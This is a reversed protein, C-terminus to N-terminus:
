WYLDWLSRSRRMSESCRRCASEGTEEVGHLEAEESGVQVEEFWGDAAREDGDRRQM